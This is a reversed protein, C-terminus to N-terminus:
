GGTVEERPTGSDTTDKSVTNEEKGTEGEKAVGQTDPAEPVAVGATEGTGFLNGIVVM